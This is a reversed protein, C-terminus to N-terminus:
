AAWSRGGAHLALIVIVAAVQQPGKRVLRHLSTTKIGWSRARAWSIRILTVSTFDYLPVALVMLPMWGRRVWHGPTLPSGTEFYTTRISVIALLFGLM